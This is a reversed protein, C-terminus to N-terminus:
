SFIAHKINLAVQKLAAKREAARLGGLPAAVDHLAQFKALETEEWLCATWLMWLLKVGRADAAEALRPIEETRIFDSALAADSAIVVAVRCTELATDIEKFWDDGPQIRTDDWLELQGDRTVPKLMTQLEKLAKRDKHSYSIFIRNPPEPQIEFIRSIESKLRADKLKAAVQMAQQGTSLLEWPEADMSAVKEYLPIAEEARGLYLMAEAQTALNWRAPEAKGCHELALQAAEAAGAADNKGVFKLFAVNIAQYYVQAHDPGGALAQALAEEYLKLAWNLDAAKGSQLWVRKLRGALTGKVDTGLAQHKELLEIAEKRKGSRDLALAANVVEKRTMAEGLQKVAFRAARVGGVESAIRLADAAGAPGEGKLLAERLLKYCEANEDRPKIMSVHDGAVVRQFKQPFCRISSEPPVFQDKDGAVALFGFPPADGFTKKWGARLARIFEGDEAMNVVQRKFIGFLKAFIAAKKLGASPTGFLVVHSTRKRLEEDEVLAQQIVLGGMSHGVLALRTYQSLPALGLRTRFHLGLVPLDPDGSWVGRLDPMLGTSYGLSHLDWKELNSDAKLLLPFRDWTTDKDGSFGHLFIVASRAAPRRRIEIVGGNASM